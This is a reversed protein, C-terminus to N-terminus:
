RVYQFKPSIEYKLPVFFIGELIASRKISSGLLPDSSNSFRTLEVTSNWQFQIAPKLYSNRQLRPQFQNVGSAIRSQKTMKLRIVCSSCLCNFIFRCHLVTNEKRDNFFSSEQENKGEKRKRKERHRLFLLKLLYLFSSISKSLAIESRFVRRGGTGMFVISNNLHKWKIYYLIIYGPPSTLLKITQLTRRVKKKKIKILRRYM